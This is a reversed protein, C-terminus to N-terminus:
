FDYVFHPPSVKGRGNELFDFNLVDRSWYGLTEYLGKKNISIYPSDFPISVLSCVVQNKRTCFKKLYCFSTQFQDGQSM